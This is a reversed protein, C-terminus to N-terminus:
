VNISNKKKKEIECMCVVWLRNIRSSRKFGPARLNRVLLDRGWGLGRNMWSNPISITTCAPTSGCVLAASLQTATAMPALTNTSSPRYSTTPLCYAWPNNLNLASYLLLRAGEKYLHPSQPGFVTLHSAHPELPLTRGSAICWSRPDFLGITRAFCISRWGTRSFGCHRELTM